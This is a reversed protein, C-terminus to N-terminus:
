CRGNKGGMVQDSIYVKGCSCIYVILTHGDEGVLNRQRKKHLRHRLFFEKGSIAQLAKITHTM